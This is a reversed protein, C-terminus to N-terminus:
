RAGGTTSGTSTGGTAVGSSSSVMTPDPMWRVVSYVAPNQSEPLDQRVTVRVAVLGIEPAEGLEISYIWPPEAIVDEVAANEVPALQTAGSTLESLKTSAILQAQTVDRAHMSNEGALRLVEGLAALSVALIALALVVELLTFARQLTNREHQRNKPRALM